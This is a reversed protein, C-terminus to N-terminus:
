RSMIVTRATLKFLCNALSAKRYHRVKFQCKLSFSDYTMQNALMNNRTLLRLQVRLLQSIITKTSWYLPVYFLFLQETARLFSMPQVTCRQLTLKFKVLGAHGVVSRYVFVVIVARYLHLDLKNFLDHQTLDVFMPSKVTRFSLQGVNLRDISAFKYAQLAMNQWHHSCVNLVYQFDKNVM